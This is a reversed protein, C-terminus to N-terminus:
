GPRYDPHLRIRIDGAAVEGRSTTPRVRVQEGNGDVLTLPPKGDQLHADGWQMLALFVPLLDEGAATLRYQERARAGPERYEVQEVLGAGALQKLARSVAPASTETRTVFDDFRATGYFFERLVLFVTKTKLLDLTRAASCDDGISWSGRDRLREEFEV